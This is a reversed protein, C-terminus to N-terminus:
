VKKFSINEDINKFNTDEVLKYDVYAKQYDLLAQIQRDSEEKLAQQRQKAVADLRAKLNETEEDSNYLSDRYEQSEFFNKGKHNLFGLATDSIVWLEKAHIIEKFIEEYDDKVTCEGPTKLWCYNCGICNGIKKDAVEIVKIDKGAEKALRKIEESVSTDSTTNVLLIM